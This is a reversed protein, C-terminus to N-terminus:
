HKFKNNTCEQKRRGSGINTDLDNLSTLCLQVRLCQFILFNVTRAAHCRTPAGYVESNQSAPSIFLNSTIM